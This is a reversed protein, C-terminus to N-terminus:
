AYKIVFHNRRHSVRNAFASTDDRVIHHNRRQLNVPYMGGGKAVLGSDEYVDKETNWIWWNGNDGVQNPHTNIELTLATQKECDSIAKLCALRMADISDKFSQWANKTATFWSNWVAVVGSSTNTFFAEWASVRDREAQNSSTNFTNWDDKTKSFWANWIAKVGTTSHEFWAVWASQRITEAKVRETEANARNTEATQRATETKQRTNEAEKRATEAQVRLNEANVRSTEADKRLAEDKARATEAERRATEAQNATSNFSNWATKTDGFWKNWIAVVGTTANEFWAAWSNRRATEATIADATAKNAANTANVADKTAQKAENTAKVCNDAADQVFTLSVKVSNNNEDTGLTFLGKLTAGLPLKSIPIKKM